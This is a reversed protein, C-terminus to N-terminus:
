EWRSELPLMIASHTAGAEAKGSYTPLWTAARLGLEGDLYHWQSLGTLYGTHM